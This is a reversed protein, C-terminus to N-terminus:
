WAKLLRQACLGIVLAVLSSALNGILFYESFDRNELAKGRIFGKAAALFVLVEYNGAAVAVAVIIREIAGILRGRNYETTDTQTSEANGNVDAASSLTVPETDPM